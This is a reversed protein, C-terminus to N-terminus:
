SFSLSLIGKVVVALQEVSTLLTILNNYASTCGIIEISCGRQTSTKTCSIRMLQALLVSEICAQCPLMFKVTFGICNYCCGKARSGCRSRGHLPIGTNHLKAPSNIVGVFEFQAKANVAGNTLLLTYAEVQAEVEAESLSELIFFIANTWPIKLCLYHVLASKCLFGHKVSKRYSM